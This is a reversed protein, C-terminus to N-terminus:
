LIDMWGKRKPNIRVRNNDHRGFCGQVPPNGAADGSWRAIESCHLNQITMGRGANGDASSSSEINATSSQFCYRDRIRKQPECCGM